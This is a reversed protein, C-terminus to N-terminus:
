GLRQRKAAPEAASAGGPGCCAAAGERRAVAAPQLARSLQLHEAQGACRAAQQRVFACVFRMAHALLQQSGALGPAVAPLQAPVHMASGATGGAELLSFLLAHM